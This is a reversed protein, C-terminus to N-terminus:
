LYNAVLVIRRKADSCTTSAHLQSPDHLLVRNEVSPIITGDELATGGDNTNIYVLAGKHPFNFDQHHRHVFVSPTRTFMIARLRVLARFEPLYRLFNDGVLNYYESRVTHDIYMNHEFYYHEVDEPDSVVDSYNWPFDYSM